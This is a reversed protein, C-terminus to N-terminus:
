LTWHAAGVIATRDQQRAELNIWSSFLNSGGVDVSVVAQPLMSPLFVTDGRNQIFVQYELIHDQFLKQASGSNESSSKVVSDIVKVQGVLEQITWGRRVLYRVATQSQKSVFWVKRGNLLVAATPYAPAPDEDVHFGRMGRGSIAVLSLDLM